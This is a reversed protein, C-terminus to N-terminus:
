LYRLPNVPHGNIRVEFHLHPGTALGTAGVRAIVQGRGVREGDSVLLRSCHGYVTAFGGGHDVIVVNGYGGMRESAIVVGAAAAHIPTGYGAGFDVGTHMRTYHLIPHYRMGFGSTIPAGPIPYSFRGTFHGAFPAVSGRGRRTPHSNAAAVERMYTEIQGTIQEEDEQFQNALETLEGVHSNLEGLYHDKQARNSQLSAQQSRQDAILAKIRDVLADAERKKDVIYAQTQRYDTFDTRDKEEIHRILTERQAIEGVDRAGILASLFTPKGEMYIHRLRRGIVVKEEALRLNAAALDRTDQAAQARSSELHAETGSLTVELSNLRTDVDHIDHLVDKVARKTQRLEARIQHSQARVAQLQRRLDHINKKPAPPKKPGMALGASALFFLVALGPARMSGELADSRRDDFM